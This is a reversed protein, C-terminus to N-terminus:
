GETGIGPTVMSVFRGRMLTRLFQVLRDEVPEIKEGFEAHMAEAIEAVTATGDLRKWVFSGVPDLHVQFPRTRFLREFRKAIPGRGLRPVLITVYDDGDEWNCNRSPRM